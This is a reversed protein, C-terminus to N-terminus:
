KAEFASRVAGKLGGMGTPWGAVLSFKRSDVTEGECYQAM